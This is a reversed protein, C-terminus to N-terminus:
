IQPTNTPINGVAERQEPTVKEHSEITAIVTADVLSGTGKDAIAGSTTQMTTGGTVDKDKANHAFRQGAIAGIIAAAMTVYARVNSPISYLILNLIPDVDGPKTSVAAQSLAVCLGVVSGCLATITGWMKTKWNANM